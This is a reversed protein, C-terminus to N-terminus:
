AREGEPGATPFMWSLYKVIDEPNSLAPCAAWRDLAENGYRILGIHSDRDRDLEPDPQTFGLRKRLLELDDPKGTLFRWGPGVNHEEAYARLVKPTDTRPDLTLSYMHIDRGARDGLLRQVKRLNATYMPCRNMCNTYMFNFVVVRGRVLDTYFRAREGEHTMVVADPFYGDRPGRRTAYCPLTPPAPCDTQASVASVASAAAFGSLKGLLSRRNV